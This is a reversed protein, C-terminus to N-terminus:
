PAGLRPRGAPADLGRLYTFLEMFAKLIVRPHAGTQRGGVRPLHRVGVQGISLGARRAAHLLEACVLAGDSSTPTRDLLARPFVKFACNVDRVGLGLLSNVLATWAVGNLYRGLGDRRAIRYASVVDHGELVTLVRPLESLDFQGDGDTYFIWAHRATEFGRRLAAGYGRNTEHGVVRVEPLREALALARARTRDTSGDDVVIVELEGAVERGVQVAELVVREVNAEEQHCPLV